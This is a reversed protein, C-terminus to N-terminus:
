RQTRRPNVHPSVLSILSAHAEQRRELTLHSMVAWVGQELHVRRPMVQTTPDAARRGATSTQGSLKSDAAAVWGGKRGAFFGRVSGVSAGKGGGGCGGSANECCRAEDAEDRTISAINLSRASAAAALWGGLAGSAVATATACRCGASGALEDFHPPTSDDANIVDACSKFSRISERAACTAFCTLASACPSAHTGEATSLRAPHLRMYSAVRLGLVHMRHAHQPARHAFMTACTSGAAASRASYNRYSCRRFRPM